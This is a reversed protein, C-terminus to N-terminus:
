SATRGRRGQRPNRLAKLEHRHRLLWLAFNPLAFAYVREPPNNSRIKAHTAHHSDSGSGEAQLVGRRLLSKRLALPKPFAKNFLTPHVWLQAKGHRRGIFAGKKELDAETMRSPECRRLDITPQELMWWLLCAVPDSETKLKLHLRLAHIVAGRVDAQRPLIGGHQAFSGAAYILSMADVLRSPLRGLRTVVRDNAFGAMHHHLRERFADPGRARENVLLRLMAPMATGHFCSVAASFRKALRDADQENRVGYFVGTVAEPIPIEFLRQAAGAAADPTERSLLDELADNSTIYFITRVQVATKLEDPLRGRQEVGALHHILTRMDTERSAKNGLASLEDIIMPLDGYQPMWQEIRNMTNNFKLYYRGADHDTAPGCTSAAIDLCTTKGRGPPGVLMLGFNGQIRSLKLLPAALAVLLSFLVLPEEAAPTAVNERWQDLTGAAHVCVVNPAYTVPVGTANPGIATGDPYGFLNNNWGVKEVMDRAPFSTVNKIQKIVANRQESDFIKVGLSKLTEFGTQQSISFKTVDVWGGRGRQDWRSYECGSPGTATELLVAENSEVFGAKDHTKFKDM